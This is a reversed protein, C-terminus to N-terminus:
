YTKFRMYIAYIKFYVCCFLLLYFLLKLFVYDNEVFYSCTLIDFILDKSLVIENKQKRIMLILPYFYREVNIEINGFNQYLTLM